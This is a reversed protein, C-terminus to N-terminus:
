SRDVRIPLDNPISIEDGRGAKSRAQWAGSEYAAVIDSTFMMFSVWSGTGIADMPANCARFAAVKEPTFGSSLVIQTHTAGCDDLAKRANYAAEITVGPGFGYRDLGARAAVRDAASAMIRDVLESVPKEHGGQHVRTGHTDLRVAYLKEGFREYAERCIDLERGEFDTLVTLPAEPFHEIYAAASAISSGGFVANLAHPISGYLGFPSRTGDPRRIHDEGVGLREHVYAHGAETSTGAAGGIAAAYALPEVLQPPYHRPCMDVVPVGGAADVTRAMGTAAGSLSLMGLYTTELSVLEGFWGEIIMSAGRAPCRDGDRRARIMLPGSAHAEVFSVAEDIGCLVADQRAFVVYRVMRRALETNAVIQASRNFYIDAHPLRTM